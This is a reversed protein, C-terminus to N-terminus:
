HNQSSIFSRKEHYVSKVINTDFLIKIKKNKNNNNQKTWTHIVRRFSGFTISFCRCEFAYALLKGVSIM